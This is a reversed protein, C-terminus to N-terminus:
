TWILNHVPDPLFVQRNPLLTTLPVTLTPFKDKLARSTFSLANWNSHLAPRYLM